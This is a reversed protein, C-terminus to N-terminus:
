IGRKPIKHSAMVTIEYLLYVLRSYFHSIVLLLLHDNIYLQFYAEQM